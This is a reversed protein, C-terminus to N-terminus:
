GWPPSGACSRSPPRPTAWARPPGPSDSRAAVRALGIVVGPHAGLIEDARQLHLRYAPWDGARRAAEAAAGHDRWTSDSQAALPTAAFAAILLVRKLPM